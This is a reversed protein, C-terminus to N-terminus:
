YFNIPRGKPIERPVTAGFTEQKTKIILMTNNGGTTLSTAGKGDRRLEEVDGSGKNGSLRSLGLLGELIM